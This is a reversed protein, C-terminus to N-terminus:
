EKEEIQPRLEELLVNYNEQITSSTPHESGLVKECISLAREFMQRAEEYKGQKHYLSALNNLSLAVSLDDPGFAKERISLARVYLSEAEAYKDQREYLSALNHLSMAVDPHDPEFAKERITLSRKALLEAEAYKGQEYYLYALNNLPPAVDTHDPGLVTEYINLARELLSEAEAYRGQSAYINALNNISLAVDTNDPGLVSEYIDIAREFLPEAETYKGLHYYLSALNNLSLAVSPDDPGLARERISLASAYLSAAEAYRARKSCYYGAQNLLRAAEAFEFGYEGILRSAEQAHSLLKACLPWKKHDPRPFVDNLARVVREAWLRRADPSMEDKVVQQVLRHIETTGNKANRRILSFRGAEGIIKVLTVGGGSASALNEGLQSAGSIFLEEPIADPALFACARIMDAAAASAEEVKQFALSFTITVPAHDASLGGRERRLKEGELRYLELYEAPSSSMEEIFAGAQDLALPLGGVERTLEEAAACDSETAAGLADELRILKARRLLFLTGEEPTMEKIEVKGVEGTAHARTTLLVHGRTERRLLDSVLGLDDANDLILLWGDNARLWRTVAQVAKDRDTEDKEPLGLKDALAALGAKLSDEGDAKAWLVANYEGRHRYAYEVATQTKGVGGMGSLAVNGSNVLERNLDELVQERGTFFKNRPHEVNWVPATAGTTGGEETSSSTSPKSKSLELIRRAVSVLVDDQEYEEMSNLPKNPPNASQFISLSLENPGDTPDPYKFKTEAFLCSRLIVPIVMRGENMANMLLVPLESNRIYKSALFAPSVLLVAVDADLLKSKISDDWQEGGEIETDAWAEVRDQLVLPELHELLRNLWRMSADPSENDKHAYSIFVTFDNAAVDSPM